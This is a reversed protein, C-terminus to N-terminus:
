KPNSYHYIGNKKSFYKETLKQLSIEKRIYAKKDSDLVNACMTKNNSLNINLKAQADNYFNVSKITTTEM